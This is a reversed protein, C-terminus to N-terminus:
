LLFGLYWLVALLVLGLVVAGLLKKFIKWLLIVVVLTVIISLVSGLIAM